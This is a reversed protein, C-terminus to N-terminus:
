IWKSIISAIGIASTVIAVTLAFWNREMWERVPHELEQLRQSGKPTIGRAEGKKDGGADDLLPFLYREEVLYDIMVGLEEAEVHTSYINSLGHLAASHEVIRGGDQAARLVQREMEMIENM